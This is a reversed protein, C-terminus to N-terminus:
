QSFSAVAASPTVNTAASPCYGLEISLLHAEHKLATAAEGEPRLDISGVSGLAAIAACLRGNLDFVPAAVGGMGKIITDRTVACGEERVAQCLSDIPRRADLQARQEATARALEAKAIRRLRDDRSYALCVQGTSSWLVPMVSGVRVNVTVPQLPEEWRVITPGMNGVVGLMCTLGLRDRLRLLVPDSARVVDARRIAVLGLQLAEPGLQYRQTAADQSVFGEQLLSALYRHVKPPLEGVEAAISTLGATGGLRGLAKLVSLGMEASQVRRRREPTDPTPPLSM